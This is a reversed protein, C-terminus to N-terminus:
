EDFLNVTKQPAEADILPEDEVPVYARMRMRGLVCDTGPCRATFQNLGNWVWPDKVRIGEVKNYTEFMTMHNWDYGGIAIQPVDWPLLSNAVYPQWLVTLTGLIMWVMYPIQLCAATIGVEDVTIGAWISGGLALLFSTSSLIMSVMSAYPWWGYFVPFWLAGLAWSVVFFTLPGPAGAWLEENWVLFASTSTFAFMIAWSLGYFLGMSVGFIQHFLDYLWLNWVRTSYRTITVVAEPRILDAPLKFILWTFFFWAVWSWAIDAGSLAWDECSSSSM